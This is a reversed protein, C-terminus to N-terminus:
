IGKIMCSGRGGNVFGVVGCRKEKKQGHSERWIYFMLWFLKKVKLSTIVDPRHDCQAWASLGPCCGWGCEKGKIM